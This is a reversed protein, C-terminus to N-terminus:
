MFEYLKLYLKLCVDYDKEDATLEESADGSYKDDVYVPYEFVFKCNNWDLILDGFLDEGILNFHRIARTLYKNTYIIFLEAVDLADEVEEETPNRYEHELLNRKKNIKNLIRPSIIGIRNLFDIKAPFHWNKAKKSLGFGILLSDLQSDIARKTNSLSNVLHHNYKAALDHKAFNLFEDPSIDFDTEITGFSYGDVDDVNHKNVLRNLRELSFEAM